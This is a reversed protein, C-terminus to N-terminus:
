LKLLWIWLFTLTKDKWRIQDCGEGIYYCLSGTACPAGTSGITAPDRAAQRSGRQDKQRWWPQWPLKGGTEIIVPLFERERGRRFWVRPVPEAAGLFGNQHGCCLIISQKAQNHIFSPFNQWLGCNSRNSRILHFFMEPSLCPWMQTNWKSNEKLIKSELSRACVCACVCLSSERQRQNVTKVMHSYKSQDWHLKYLYGPYPKSIPSIQVAPERSHFPSSLLQRYDSGTQFASEESHTETPFWWKTCLLIIWLVSQWWNNIQKKIEDFTETGSVCGVFYSWIVIHGQRRVCARSTLM